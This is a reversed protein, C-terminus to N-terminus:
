FKTEMTWQRTQNTYCAECKGRMTQAKRMLRLRTLILAFHSRTEVRQSICLSM